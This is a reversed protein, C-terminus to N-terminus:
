VGQSHLQLRSAAYEALFERWRGIMEEITIEYVSEFRGPGAWHVQFYKEAGYTEILYQVFSAASIRASIEAMYLPHSEDFRAPFMDSIDRYSGDAFMQYARRHHNEVLLERYTESFYYNLMHALGESFPPFPFSGGIEFELIHSVEHAAIYPFAESLGAYSMRNLGFNAFALSGDLMEYRHYVRNYVPAFDFDFIESYWNVVLYTARDIYNIHGMIDEFTFYQEFSDFLFIYEGWQTSKRIYYGEGFNVADGPLLGLELVIGPAMPLGAFSYFHAKAAEHAAPLDGKTYLEALEALLGNELLYNVFQHATGVAGRHKESGWFPPAFYFDGFNDMIATQEPQHLGANARAITEMGVSLWIPLSHGSLHNVLWGFTNIDGHNLSLPRMADFVYNEDMAFSIRVDRRAQPLVLMNEIEYIIKETQNIFDQNAAEDDADFFYRRNNVEAEVMYGMVRFAPGVPSFTITHELFADGNSIENEDAYPSCSILAFALGALVFLSYRKLLQTM